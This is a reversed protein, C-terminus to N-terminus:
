RMVWPSVMSITIASSRSMAAGSVPGARGASGAGAAIAVYHFQHGDASSLANEDTRFRDWLIRVRLGVSDRKDAVGALAHADPAPLPAVPATRLGTGTASISGGIPSSSNLRMRRSAM